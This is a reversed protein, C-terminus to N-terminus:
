SRHDIAVARVHLSPGLTHTRTAFARRPTLRPQWDGEKERPVRSQTAYLARKRLRQESNERM